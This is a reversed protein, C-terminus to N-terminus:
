KSKRAVVIMRHSTPTFPQAGYGGFAREIEFGAKNLYAAIEHFSYLRVRFASERVADGRILINKTTAVSTAVDFKTEELIFDKDRRWWNRLALPYQTLFDRNALDLTFVGGPALAAHISRITAFNDSERECYGISTFMSIASDFAGEFVTTRLDGRVWFPRKELPLESANRVALNLLGDSQDLGVVRWGEGALPISHRGYGCCADLLWRGEAPGLISRLLNVEEETNRYPRDAHIDMYDRDFYTKWWNPEM